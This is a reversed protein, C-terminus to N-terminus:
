GREGHMEWGVEDVNFGIGGLGRDRAGPTDRACRLLILTFTSVVDTDGLGLAPL